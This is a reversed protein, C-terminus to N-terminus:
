VVMAISVTTIWQMSAASAFVSKHVTCCFNLTQHICSVIKEVRLMERCLKCAESEAFMDVSGDVAVTVSNSYAGRCKVGQQIKVQKNINQDGPARRVSGCLEHQPTTHRVQFRKSPLACRSGLVWEHTFFHMFRQVDNLLILTVRLSHTVILSSRVEVCIYFFRHRM